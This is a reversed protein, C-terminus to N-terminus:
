TKQSVKVLNYHLTRQQGDIATQVIGLVEGSMFQGTVGCRRCILTTLPEQPDAHLVPMEGRAEMSERQEKLGMVELRGGYCERHWMKLDNFAFDEDKGRKEVDIHFTSSDRQDGRTPM